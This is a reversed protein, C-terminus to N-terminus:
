SQIQFLRDPDGGGVTSGTSSTVSLLVRWEVWSFGHEDKVLRLRFFFFDCVVTRGIDLSTM